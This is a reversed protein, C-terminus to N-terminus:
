TIGLMGLSAGLNGQRMPSYKFLILRTQLAIEHTQSQVVVAMYPHMVELDKAESLDAIGIARM